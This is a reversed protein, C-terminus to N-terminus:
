KEDDDSKEKAQNLEMCRAIQDATAEGSEWLRKLKRHEPTLQLQRVTISEYGCEKVANQIAKATRRLGLAKAHAIDASLKIAFRKRAEALDDKRRLPKM